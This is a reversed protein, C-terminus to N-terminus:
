RFPAVLKNPGPRSSEARRLKAHVPTKHIVVEEQGSMQAKMRTRCAVPSQQQSDDSDTGGSGQGHGKRFVWATCSARFVTDWPRRPGGVLAPESLRLRLRKRPIKPARVRAAPGTPGLFAGGAVTPQVARPREERQAAAAKRLPTPFPIHSSRILLM